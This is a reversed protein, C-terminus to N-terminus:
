FIMCMESFLSDQILDVVHYAIIITLHLTVWTLDVFPDTPIVPYTEAERLPILELSAIFPFSILVIFYHAYLYSHM